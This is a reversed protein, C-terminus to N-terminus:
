NAVSLLYNWKLAFVHFRQPNEKMKIAEDIIWKKLQGYM